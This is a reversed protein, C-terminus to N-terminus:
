SAFISVKQTEVDKLISDIDGPTRLYNQLAPTIVTSAFDPRTDRDLFQSIASANDVVEVAKKQLPTYTAQDQDSRPSIVSPDAKLKYEIAEATSLYLLLEKAKEENTPKAAMMFGDIPAEVVDAGIAPDFEPVVFFDIDEPNSSTAWQQDIFMGMLYMASKENLVSQAAEQWTRGLPDAQQFPLLESWASFVKKVPDGTWSEEGAMLSVHYDYGNLRLNLMDFTGMAEWGDKDSMAIPDMGAGKISENLTIWEDFTTPASWGNAEFVSPKYFIAWPYYNNPIFVQRGENDTSAVKMSEPMGTIKEWVDSLDGVLGREAFYRARYGAFWTFVDDPNGQLYNNIGEKFTEHDVTNIKTTGGKWSDIMEAFAKRPVDDSQHSGVTVLNPDSSAGGGCGALLAAAGIGAGAGLITRRNVHAQRIARVSAPIQNLPSVTM